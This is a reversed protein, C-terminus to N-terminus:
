VPLLWNFVGPSVIYQTMKTALIQHLTNVTAYRLITVNQPYLQGFICNHVSHVLCGDFWLYQVSRQM